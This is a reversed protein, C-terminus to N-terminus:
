AIAPLLFSNELEIQVDDQDEIGVFFVDVQFRRKSELELLIVLM